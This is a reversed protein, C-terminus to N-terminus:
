RLSSTLRVSGEGETLTGQAMILCGDFHFIRLLEYTSKQIGGLLMMETLFFFSRFKQAIGFKVKESSNPGFDYVM